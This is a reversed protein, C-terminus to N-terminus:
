FLCVFVVRRFLLTTRLSAVNSIRGALASHHCASSPLHLPGEQVKGEGGIDGFRMGGFLSGKSGVLFPPARGGLCFASGTWVVPLLGNRLSFGLEAPSTGKPCEGRFSTTMDLGCYRIFGRFVNNIPQRSQQKMICCRFCRAPDQGVPSTNMVANATALRNLPRETSSLLLNAAQPKSCPSSATTSAHQFRGIQSQKQMGASFCICFVCYFSGWHAFGLSSCMDRRASCFVGCMWSQVGGKSESHIQLISPLKNIKLIFVPYRPHEWELVSGLVAELGGRSIRVCIWAEAIRADRERRLENMKRRGHSLRIHGTTNLLAEVLPGRTDCFICCSDTM